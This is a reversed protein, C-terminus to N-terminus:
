YSTLSDMVRFIRQESVNQEIINGKKDIIMTYPISSIRLSKTFESEWANFDTINIASEMKDKSIAALWKEKNKDLSIALFTIEQKNNFSYLWNMLAINKVRCPACWSAWFDVIAYTTKLSDLTFEKGDILYFRYTIQEKTFIRIGERDGRKKHADLIQKGQISNKKDDSYQNYIEVLKELDIENAGVSLVYLAFMADESELHDRVYKYICKNKEWQVAFLMSDSRDLQEAYVQNALNKKLEERAKSKLNYVSDFRPLFHKDIEKFSSFALTDIKVLEVTDTKLITATQDNESKNQNEGCAILFLLILSKPIKSYM